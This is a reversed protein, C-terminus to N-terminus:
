DERRRGLRHYDEPVTLLGWNLAEDQRYEKSLALATMAKCMEFGLYFAHSADIRAPSASVLQEFLAFPDAAALHRGAQLAHLLGNEAFLRVNHDRISRAMEDLQESGFPQLKKDRLIVLDTSVHKPPVRERVAFHVLRRARDCERVSSCAWNIVQTTLVSRVGVEQCFGLLLLNIAASDADTMETLNGIGMMAPVEPYRRRVDVYRWLSAAFGLGIPELITDVRFPVGRTALYGVTEDLSDLLQLSDPIVVVECGWDPAAERNSANVSLVLEAGARAALAIERPHFSDISVRCGEDRLSKVCDAVDPWPDGPECGVDIVDAGDARLRRAQELIAARPLRPAHNIEAIIEINYASLDARAGAPAGFYEPLQRLDRPGREVPVGAAQTLAALDGGCYGPILVRTANAPVRMHRGIWVPTMLAAVSIPLVDLTWAFGAQAALPPLIRRLAHEALRGTVLHIREPQSSM